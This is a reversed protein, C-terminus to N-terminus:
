QDEGSAGAGTFVLGGSLGFSAVDFNDELKKELHLGGTSFAGLTSVSSGGSSNGSATVATNSTEDTNTFEYGGTWGSSASFSDNSQYFMSFGEIDIGFSPQDSSGAGFGGGMKSGDNDGFEDGSDDNSTDDDGADSSIGHDHHGWQLQGNVASYGYETEGAKMAVDVTVSDGDNLFVDTIQGMQSNNDNGSTSISAGLQPIATVVYDTEAILGEFQYVGTSDTYAVGALAEEGSDTAAYLGVMVGAIGSEDPNQIGDENQDDWIIGSITGAPDSDNALYSEVIEQTGVQQNLYPSDNLKFRIDDEGSSDGTNPDNEGDGYGNIVYISNSSISVNESTSTNSFGYQNNYSNEYSNGSSLSLTSSGSGTFQYSEAPEGTHDFYRNGVIAIGGSSIFTGSADHDVTVSTTGGPSPTSWQSEGIWVFSSQIDYTSIVTAGLNNSSKPFYSYEHTTTSVAHRVSATPDFAQNDLIEALQSAGEIYAIAVSITTVTTEGFKGEANETVKRLESWSRQTVYFGGGTPVYSISTYGQSTGSSSGLENTDGKWINHGTIELSGNSSDFEIDGGLFGSQIGEVLGSEGELSEIQGSDFDITAVLMDPNETGALVPDFNVWATGDNVQWSSGEYRVAVFQDSQQTIGFRSEVSNDSYMLYGTGTADPSVDVTNNSSDLEVEQVSEHISHTKIGDSSLPTAGHTGWQSKSQDTPKWIGSKSLESHEISTQFNNAVPAPLAFLTVSPDLQEIVEVSDSPLTQRLSLDTEGSLPDRKEGAVLLSGDETVQLSSAFFSESSFNQSGANGFDPDLQGTQDYRTLQYSLGPDSSLVLWQENPGLQVDNVVDGGDVNSLHITGGSGFSHNLVGQLDFQTLQPSGVGSDYVVSYHQDSQIMRPTQNQNAGAPLSSVVVTGNSGFDDDLEGNDTFKVLSLRDGNSDQESILLLIEQDTTLEIGFIEKLNNEESLTTTIMGDNGFQSDSQGSWDLKVLNLQEVGEDTVSRGAAIIKNGGIAVSEISDFTTEPSFQVVGAVSSESGGFTEDITGGNNLKVFAASQEVDGETGPVAIQGTLLLTGDDFAVVSQFSFEVEGGLDVTAFGNDGFESDLSGDPQYRAIFNLGTENDSGVVYISDDLNQLTEIMTQNGDRGLVATGLEGFSSRVSVPTASHTGDEDIATVTVQYDGALVYKHSASTADGALQETFGNGWDVIWQSVSDNGPDTAAFQIEYDAGAIFQASSAGVTVNPAVNEVEIALSESAVTDSGRMLLIQVDYQGDDSYQIALNDITVQNQSGLNEVSFDSISVPDREDGFDVTVQYDTSGGVSDVFTTSYSTSEGELLNVSSLMMRPELSEVNFVSHEDSKSLLTNRKLRFLRNWVTQMGRGSFMRPKKEFTDM